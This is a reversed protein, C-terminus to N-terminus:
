ATDQKEEKTAALNGILDHLPKTGAGLALGTVAVDLLAPAQVGISHLLLLGLGGSIMCGVLSALGWMLVTSNARFLAMADAAEIAQTHLCSGPVAGEAQQRMLRRHRVLYGKEPRRNDVGRGFGGLIGGARNSFPEIFREIAQAAVYYGAFVSVGPVVVPARPTVQRYVFAGVAVGMAALAYATMVYRTRAPPAPSTTSTARSTDSDATLPGKGVATKVM